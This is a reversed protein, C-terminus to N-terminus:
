DSMAFPLMGNTFKFIPGNYGTYRVARNLQYLVIQFFQVSQLIHHSVSITNVGKGASADLYVFCKGIAFGGLLFGPLWLCFTKVERDQYYLLTFSGAM